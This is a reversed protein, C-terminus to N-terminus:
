NTIVTVEFHLSTLLNDDVKNWMDDRVLKFGKSTLSVIKYDIPYKKDDSFSIYANGNKRTITYESDFLSSLELDYTQPNGDWDIGKYKQIVPGTARFNSETFEITGTYDSNVNEMINKDDATIKVHGHVDWVGILMEKIEDTSYDVGGSFDDDDDSGCSALCLGMVAMLMLGALRITKKM